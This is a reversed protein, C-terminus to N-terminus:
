ELPHVPHAATQLPMNRETLSARVLRSAGTELHKLGGHMLRWSAASAGACFDQCAILPCRLGKACFTAFPAVKDTRLAIGDVRRGVPPNQCKRGSSRLPARLRTSSLPPHLRRQDPCPHFQPM